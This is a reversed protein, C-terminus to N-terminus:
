PTTAAAPTPASVIVTKACDVTAGRDDTVTLTVKYKGPKKYDTSPNEKASSSGDGFDWTHSTIRGDPDKSKNTFKVKLGAAVSEFDAVPAINPTPTPTPIPTPTPPPALQRAIQTALLVPIPKVGGALMMLVGVRIRDGPDSVGFNPAIVQSGILVPLASNGNM